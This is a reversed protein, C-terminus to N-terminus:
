SALEMKETLTTPNVARNQVMCHNKLFARAPNHCLPNYKTKMEKQDSTLAAMKNFSTDKLDGRAMRM